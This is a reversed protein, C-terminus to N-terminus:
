HTFFQGETPMFYMTVSGYPAVFTSTLHPCFNCCPIRSFKANQPHPGVNSGYPYHLGINKSNGTSKMNLPGCHIKFIKDPLTTHPTSMSWIQGMAQWGSLPPKMSTFDARIMHQPIVYGTMACIHSVKEATASCRTIWYWKTIEVKLKRKSVDIPKM